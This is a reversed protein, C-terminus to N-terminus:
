NQHHLLWLNLRRGLPHHAKVDHEVSSTVEFFLAANGSKTVKLVSVGPYASKDNEFLRGIEVTRSMALFGSYLLCHCRFSVQPVITAFEAPVEFSFHSSKNDCTSLIISLNPLEIAAYTRKRRLMRATGPLKKIKVDSFRVTTTKALDTTTVKTTKALLLSGNYEGATNNM